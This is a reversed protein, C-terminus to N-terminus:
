SNNQEDKKAGKKKTEKIEEVLGAQILDKAIKLDSIKAVEGQAMSVLGCFPKLARVLM